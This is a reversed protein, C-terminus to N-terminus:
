FHQNIYNNTWDEVSYCKKNCTACQFKCNLTELNSGSVHNEKDQMMKLIIGGIERVEKSELINFSFPENYIYYNLFNLYLAPESAREILKFRSIYKSLKMVIKRPLMSSTTEKYKFCNPGRPQKYQQGTALKYKMTERYKQAPCNALCSNNVIATLEFKKSNEELWEKDLVKKYPIVVGDFREDIIPADSNDHIVISRSIKIQSKLKDLEESYHSVMVESIGYDIYEKIINIDTSFPMTLIVPRLYSIEKILKIWEKKTQKYGPTPAWISEKGAKYFSRASFGDEGHLPLYVSNIHKNYKINQIVEFISNTKLMTLPIEFKNLWLNSSTLPSKEIIFNAM